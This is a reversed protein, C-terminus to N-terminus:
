RLSCTYLIYNSIVRIFYATLFLSSIGFCSSTHLQHYGSWLKHRSGYKAIKVDSCKYAFRYYFPSLRFCCLEFCYRREATFRPFTGYRYSAAPSSKQSSPTCIGSEYCSITRSIQNCTSECVFVWRQFHHVTSHSQLLLCVFIDTNYWWSLVGPLFSM